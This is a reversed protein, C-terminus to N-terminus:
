NENISKWLKEKGLYYLIVNLPYEHLSSMNLLVIATLQQIKKLDLGNVSDERIYSNFQYQCNKYKKYDEKNFSFEIKNGNTLLKYKKSKILDHPFVLSANLKALDYYADGFETIGGFDQRWDILKYSSEKNNYIINSIAMDGHMLCPFGHLLEHWSLSSLIDSLPPIVVGNVETSSDTINLQKYLNDLRTKTKRYYFEICANQFKMSEEPSLKIEKWLDSKETYSLFDQIMVYLSYGVDFLDKGELFDYSYFNNSKHILQPVFKNLIEARKIRNTCIKSDFFYKVVRNGLFYIEEDVKDLNEIKAKFSQRTKQLNELNGIDHWVFKKAKVIDKTRHLVEDFGASLQFQGQVITPNENIGKFFAEYNKIFCCGIFANKTYNSAYKENFYTVNDNTIELCSFEGDLSEAVSYGLWTENADLFGVYDWEGVLTDCTWIYFPEQLYEQCQQIAYGPGSGEGEFKDTKVFTVKLDPHAAKIYQEVIDGLYGVAIVFEYGKPFYEIIHSIAAKDGVRLLAKNFYKTYTGLRKGPGAALLCVKM